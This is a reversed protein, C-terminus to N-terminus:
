SQILFAIFNEWDQTVIFGQLHEPNVGIEKAFDPIYIQFKGKEIERAISPILGELFGNRKFRDNWVVMMCNKLYPNTFVVELFKLPHVDNVREGLEKLHDQQFLLSLKGKEGMASVIEYIYAKQEETCLLDNYKLESAKVPPRRIISAKVPQAAFTCFILLCFLKIKFAM